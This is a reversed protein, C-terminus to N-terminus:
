QKNDKVIQKREEYNKDIQAQVKAAEETEDCRTLFDHQKLLNDLERQNKMLRENYNAKM